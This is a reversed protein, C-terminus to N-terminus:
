ENDIIKILKGLLKVNLDINKTKDNSLDLLQWKNGSYYSLTKWRGMSSSRNDAGDFYL